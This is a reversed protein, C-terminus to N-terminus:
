LSHCKKAKWLLRINLFNSKFTLSTFICKEVIYFFILEPIFKTQMHTLRSHPFFLWVGFKSTYILFVEKTPTELFLSKQDHCKCSLSQRYDSTFNWCVWWLLATGFLQHLTPWHQNTPCITKSSLSVKHPPPPVRSPSKISWEWSM